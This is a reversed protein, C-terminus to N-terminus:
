IFNIKITLTKSKKSYSAEVRNKDIKSNELKLSLKEKNGPLTIIVEALSINIDIESMSVNLNDIKIIANNNENNNEIQIHKDINFTNSRIKLATFNDTTTAKNIIETAEPSVLSGFDDKTFTNALSRLQATFDNDQSIMGSKKSTFSYEDDLTAVLDDMILSELKSPKKSNNNDNMMKSSKSLPENITNMVANGDVDNKMNIVKCKEMIRELTGENSTSDPETKPLGNPYLAGANKELFGKKIINQKQSKVASPATERFKLDLNVNKSSDNSRNRILNTDLNSLEEPERAKLVQNLVDTPTSLSRNNDTNQDDNNLPFLVPTLKDRGRGFSYQKSYIKWDKRYQIKRESEICTLALDVVDRKFSNNVSCQDIVSSHIIVDVVLCQDDKNDVDDEYRVPGIVLPIELDKENFDNVVKGKSNKPPEIGRYSCLNVYLIRGGDITRIKLGDGGITRTCICFGIVPRFFGAKEEDSSKDKM